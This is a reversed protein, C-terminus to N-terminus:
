VNLDTGAPFSAKLSALKEYIDEQKKLNEHVEEAKSELSRERDAFFLEKTEIAEIQEKLTDKMVQVAEEEAEVKIAVKEVPPDKANKQTLHARADAILEARGAEEAYPAKEAKLYARLVSDSAKEIDAVSRIMLTPSPIVPLM